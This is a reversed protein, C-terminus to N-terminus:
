VVLYMDPEDINYGKLKFKAQIGKMTRFPYDSICIVYYVYCIVYDYYMFGSPKVAPRMWLDPDYISPRYGLQYFQEPLLGRFASGSSKLGYLSRVVLM